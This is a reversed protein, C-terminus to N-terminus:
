PQPLTLKRDELLTDFYRDDHSPVVV